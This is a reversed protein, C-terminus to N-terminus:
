GASSVAVPLVHVMRQGIGGQEPAPLMALMGHAPMVSWTALSDDSEFADVCGCWSTSVPAVEPPAALAM